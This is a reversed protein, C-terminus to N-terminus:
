YMIMTGGNKLKKYYEGIYSNLIEMTFESDWDGYDTQVCYKKGYITGYKMYNMKKDDELINNDIKYTNWEEETKIFTNTQENNKVNNYHTNMGSNKSIIYPPDTLILDISNNPITSLYEMGDINEIEINNSEVNVSTM